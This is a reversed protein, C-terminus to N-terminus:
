YADISICKFPNSRNIISSLYRKLVSGSRECECPTVAVTGLTKLLVCINPYSDMACAKLAKEVSYPRHEKPVAKWQREWRSYEEFANGSTRLDDRYLHIVGKVKYNGEVKVMGIVSAVFAHMKHIM